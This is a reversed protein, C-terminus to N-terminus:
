MIPREKKKGFLYHTFCMGAVGWGDGVVSVHHADGEEQWISLSYFVHWGSGM